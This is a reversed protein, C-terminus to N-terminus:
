AFPQPMEIGAPRAAKTEAYREAVDARTAKAPLTFVATTYTGRGDSCPLRAEWVTVLKGAYTVDEINEYRVSNRRFSQISM